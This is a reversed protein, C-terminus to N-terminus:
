KKLNFKIEESPVNARSEMMEEELEYQEDYKYEELLDNSSLTGFKESLKSTDIDDYMVHLTDDLEKALELSECIVNLICYPNANSAPRRDELYGKWTEGVSKPVRISAGRDSVGWSFKDISQTEHKGTLRLHNDSGYNEIHVKARSGFVKFISNFYEEGGTERMRKNSFNTHLGSGNWDGTTLPKPHLEIQYGQKEAIKYLFYRSMWLDDAAQVKGKAFVQYEWQGLAVEANTGEIGIGYELCMDLHQETLSRGVMQGGVGCYYTGQPDIIGGNNFGIIPKNHGSRIFYEQEFGVWFDEDEKGLKARDNTEHVKGKNDMVECLVYVTSYESIVSKVYLKIPKLYCDSSYGEAQKTSSGDFGWEPIEKLDGKENVDIVKVKSRLNPEPKYGDLWVYELKIKM